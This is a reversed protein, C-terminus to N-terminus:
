LRGANNVLVHVCSYDGNLRAVFRNISESCTIDCNRYEVDAYGAACLEVAAQHGLADNRCALIVRLGCRCLQLATEKGIGQIGLASTLMLLNGCTLIAM